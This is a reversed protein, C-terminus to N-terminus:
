CYGYHAGTLVHFARKIGSCSGDCIKLLNKIESAVSEIEEPKLEPCHYVGGDLYLLNGERHTRINSAVNIPAVPIEKQDM